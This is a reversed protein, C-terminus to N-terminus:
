LFCVLMDADHAIRRVVGDILIDAIPPPLLDADDDGDLPVVVRDAKTETQTGSITAVFEVRLGRQVDRKTPRLVKRPERSFHRLARHVIPRDDIVAGATVELTTLDSHSKVRHPACVLERM